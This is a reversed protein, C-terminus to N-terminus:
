RAGLPVAHGLAPAHARTAWWAPPDAAEEFLFPDSLRARAALGAPPPFEEARLLEGLRDGPPSCPVPM